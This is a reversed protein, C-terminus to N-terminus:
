TLSHLLVLVLTRLIETSEATDLELLTQCLIFGFKRLYPALLTSVLVYGGTWGVLFAMYTYGGFYIGGAM